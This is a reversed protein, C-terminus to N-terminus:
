QSKLNLYRTKYKIYKHYDNGGVKEGEIVKITEKEKTVEREKNGTEILERAAKPSQVGSESTIVGNTTRVPEHKKGSKAVTETLTEDMEDMDEFNMQNIENVKTLKDVILKILDSPITPEGPKGPERRITEIIKIIKEIENKRNIRCLDILSFFQNLKIQKVMEFGADSNEFSEIKEDIFTCMEADIKIYDNIRGKLEKYQKENEFICRCTDFGNFSKTITGVDLQIKEQNQPHKPSLHYNLRLLPGAIFNKFFVHNRIGDANKLFIITNTRQTITTQPNSGKTQSIRRYQEDSPTGIKSIPGLVVNYIHKCLTWLSEGVNDQVPIKEDIITVLIKKDIITTQLQVMIESLSNLLRNLDGDKGITFDQTNIKIQRGGESSTINAIINNIMEIFTGTNNGSKVSVTTTTMTTEM